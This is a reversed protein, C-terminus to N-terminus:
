LGLDAKIVTFMARIDEREMFSLPFGFMYTTNQDTRRRIAVPPKEPFLADGAETTRMTYLPTVAPDFIYDFDFYAVPGLGGFMPILVYADDGLNLDIDPVNLESNEHKDAGIFFPNSNWASSVRRIADKEEFPIGFYKELLFNYFGQAFAQEHINKLNQGASLLISGGGRMYLNITDFDQHFNTSNDGVDLPHDCHWIVLRYSELDTPVIVNRGYHLQDNWINDKIWRRNLFDKPGTYDDTLYEYFENIYADMAPFNENDVVLIGSKQEAPVRQKIVFNMQRSKSTRNQSDLVRVEFLHDGPDVDTLLARTDIEHFRPVRLWETGDDDVVRYRTEYNPHYTLPPYYYAKGDLRLDFAKVTALYDVGTTDHVANIYGQDPDNNEYQGAWGWRLYIKLDDSWLAARNGDKNLFFPTGYQTGDPSDQEPLPRQVSADQFTTFHNRGLVNTRRHYILASPRFHEYVRFKATREISQVNALNVAKVILHTETLPQQWDDAVFQDPNLVFWVDDRGPFDEPDDDELALWIRGVNRQNVTKFWGNEGEGPLPKQSLLEGTAINRKEIRFMFYNPIETTYPTNETFEFAVDFGLGVTKFIPNEPDAAAALPYFRDSFVMDVDPVHSTVNFYRGVPKSIQDYNDKCKIEFYSIVNSSDGDVTAPFNIVDHVRKTWISRVDPDSLPISQDAGPKYHYIWGHEDMYRKPIQVRNGDLDLVRYAYGEITGGRSEGRWFIRTQFRYPDEAVDADDEVGEYSTIFVQPEEPYVLTGKKGCATLLILLTTVMLFTIFLFKLFGLDRKNSKTKCNSINLM